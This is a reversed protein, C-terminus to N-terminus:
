HMADTSPRAEVERDDQQTREERGAVCLPHHAFRGKFERPNRDSIRTAGFLEIVYLPATRIGTGTLLDDQVRAATHPPYLRERIVREGFNLRIGCPLVRGM